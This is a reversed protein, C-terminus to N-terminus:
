VCGPLASENRKVVIITVDDNCVYDDLELYIENLIASPEKTTSNKILSMLREEGFMEVQDEVSNMEQGRVMAETVGDTFLVMIDGEELHLKDDHMMGSIDDLVGIWMGASDVMEMEDTKARYVLISQHLGSYTFEGGEGAAFATVTMFKEEDIRKINQKLTKNVLTLLEKPDRDPNEDLLMHIATQAMMMVLGATVGHGSVDGIIVWNKGAASFVDYYDGGVDDAPVMRAAIEYGDIAPEKPLLITQIRKAIKMEGWLMDRTEALDLNMVQLSDYADQLEDRTQLLDDNAEKLQKTRDIVKQELNLNLQNLEVTLLENSRFARSFRRALIIAMFLACIFLGISVFVGSQGIGFVYYFVDSFVSVALIMGGCLFIVAGDRKRKIALINVVVMYLLAPVAILQALPLLQGHIRTPTVLTVLVLISIGIGFIGAIRVRSDDPFLFHAFYLGGPICFYFTLYNLKKVIEWDIGPVIDALYIEGLVLLRVSVLICLVAFFFSSKEKTRFLYIFIYYIGLILLAGSLLFDKIHNNQSRKLLDKAPGLILPEWIGGKVHHFNSVHFVVEIEEDDIIFSEMNTNFGPTTTEFSTGAVGAATLEKGNIFLRYSSFIENLEIAFLRLRRSKLVRLRYTAFGKGPLQWNEVKYGTWHKPVEVIIRKSIAEAESFDEALLQKEWYFEWEGDLHVPGDIQLDWDRLDLVGDVAKPATKGSYTNCGIACIAGCLALCVVVLKKQYSRNNRM